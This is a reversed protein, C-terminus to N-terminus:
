YFKRINIKTINGKPRQWERARRNRYNDSGSCVGMPTSLRWPLKFTEQQPNEALVQPANSLTLEFPACGATRHIQTNFVYTLTNTHIDQERQDKVIYDHLPEIITRNCRKVQGNCQLHYTTKFLNEVVVILCVHQFCKSTFHPGNYFLLWQPLSYVLIWSGVVSECYHRSIHEFATCDEDVQFVSRHYSVATSKGAKYHLHGLDSQSINEIQKRKEKCHKEKWWGGTLTAVVNAVFKSELCSRTSRQRQHVINQSFHKWIATGGHGEAMWFAYQAKQQCIYSTNPM